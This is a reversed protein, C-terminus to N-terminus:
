CPPRPRPREPPRWPGILAEGRTSIPGDTLQTSVLQYASVSAVSWTVPSSTLKLFESHFFPVITTILEVSALPAFNFLNTRANNM